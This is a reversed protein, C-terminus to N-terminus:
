ASRRSARLIAGAAAALVGAAAAPFHQRRRFSAAASGPFDHLVKGSFGQRKEGVARCGEEQVGRGVWGVGDGHGGWGQWGGSVDGGGGRFVAGGDLGMGQGREQGLACSDEEQAAERRWSLPPAHVKEVGIPGVVEPADPAEKRRAVLIVEGDGALLAEVARPDLLEAAPLSQCEVVRGLGNDAQLVVSGVIEEADDARRVQGGQQAAQGEAAREHGCALFRGLRQAFAEAEFRRSHAAPAFDGEDAPRKRYASRSTEKHRM